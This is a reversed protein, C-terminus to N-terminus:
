APNGSQPQGSHSPTTAIFTDGDTLFRHGFHLITL